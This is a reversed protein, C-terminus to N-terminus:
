HIVISKKRTHPRQFIINSLKRILDRDLIRWSVPGKKHIFHKHSNIKHNGKRANRDALCVRSLGSYSHQCPWLFTVEIFVNLFLVLFCNKEKIFNDENTQWTITEIFTWRKELNFLSLNVGRGTARWKYYFLILFTQTSIRWM